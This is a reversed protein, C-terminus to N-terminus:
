LTDDEAPPLVEVTVDVVDVDNARDSGGTVDVANVEVTGEPTFRTFGDGTVQLQTRCNPCVTQANKLGALQTDCVPCNGEILNRKLWWRFGFFGIVPAALILVLLAFISKVIWGLGIAGLLWVVGIITLWCGLGSFNIQYNNSGQPYM